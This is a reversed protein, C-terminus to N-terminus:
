RGINLYHAATNHLQFLNFNHMFIAATKESVLNKNLKSGSNVPLVKKMKRNLGLDVGLLFIRIRM